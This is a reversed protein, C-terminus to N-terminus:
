ELPPLRLVLPLASQAYEETFRMSNYETILCDTRKFFLNCVSIVSTAMMGIIKRHKPEERLFRDKFCLQASPIKYSCTFLCSCLTSFFDSSDSCSPQFALLLRTWGLPLLMFMTFLTVSLVQFDDFTNVSTFTYYQLFTGMGCPCKTLHSFLKRVLILPSM